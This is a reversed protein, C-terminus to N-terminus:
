WNEEGSENADRTPGIWDQDTESSLLHFGSVIRGANQLEEHSAKSIHFPLEILNNSSSSFPPPPTQSFLYPWLTKGCSMGWFDIPYQKDEFFRETEALRVRSGARSKGKTKLYKIQSKGQKQRVMYARFVRHDILEGQHFYGVTAQGARILTLAFHSDLRPKLGFSESWEWTLPLYVKAMWKKQEEFILQHKISDYIVEIGKNPCQQIMDLVDNSSIKVTNPIQM